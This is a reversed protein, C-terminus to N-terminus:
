YASGDTALERVLEQGRDGAAGALLQALREVLQGRGAEDEGAARREVGREHELVRQHLVGSVARHQATLTLLQVRTDALDKFVLERLDDVVLRLDQRMMERLGAQDILRDLEPAAGTRPADGSGGMGLCGTVKLAREVQQSLKRRATLAIFAIEFKRESEGHGQNGDVPKSRQADLLAGQPRFLKRVFEAVRGAPEGGLA